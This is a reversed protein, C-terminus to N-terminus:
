NVISVGGIINSAVVHLCPANKNVNKCTEDGVEGFLSRSKVLVNVSSPVRLEIGGICTRIDIEEDENIVANRLDFRIGGCFADLRAGHFTEGRFVYEDGGFSTMCCLRKGDEGFPLSRRLWQGKDHIFGRVIFAIGEYILFCVLIYDIWAQQWLWELDVIKLLSALKLGGWVLLVVGIISRRTM